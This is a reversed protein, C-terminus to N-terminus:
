LLDCCLVLCCVIDKFELLLGEQKDHLRCWCVMIWGYRIIILLIVYGSHISIKLCTRRCCYSHVVGDDEVAAAFICAIAHVEAWCDNSDCCCYYYCCCYYCYCCHHFYHQSSVV